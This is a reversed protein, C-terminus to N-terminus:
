CNVCAIGKRSQSGNVNQIEKERQYPEEETLIGGWLMLSQPDGIDSSIFDPARVEQLPDMTHADDDLLVLTSIQAVSMM